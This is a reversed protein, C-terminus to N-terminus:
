GSHSPDIGEGPLEAQSGSRFFKSQITEIDGSAKAQRRIEKPASDAELPALPTNTLFTKTAYPKWFAPLLPVLNALGDVFIADLAATYVGGAPLDITVRLTEDYTHGVDGQQLIVRRLKTDVAALGIRLGDLVLKDKQLHVKKVDVGSTTFSAQKSKSILQGSSDFHLKDDSWFGHLYLTKGMLRTNLDAETSQAQLSCTTAFILVLLLRLRM